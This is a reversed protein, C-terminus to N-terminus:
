GGLAVLTNNSVMSKIEELAVAYFERYKSSKLQPDTCTPKTFGCDIVNVDFLRLLEDRPSFKDERPTFFYVKGDSSKEKSKRDILWWLDFESLDFRFGLIYVDGLIFDDLWSKSKFFKGKKLVEEYRSNNKRLYEIVRGLLKAYYYHGLIMSDIKRAEGHIHWIRNTIGSFDLENYSCLLYKPEVREVGSTHRSMDKLKRDSIESLGLGAIELEYSYNTTLIDSLGICLIDHLMQRQEDSCINGYLIDNKGKLADKIRNKAYIIAKLPKPCEFKEHLDDRFSHLLEDWSIGADFALNLGNGLLLVQPRGNM